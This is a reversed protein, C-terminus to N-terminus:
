SEYEEGVIMKKEHSSLGLSGLGGSQPEEIVSLFVV